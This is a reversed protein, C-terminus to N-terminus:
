KGSSNARKIFDDLALDAWVLEDMVDADTDEGHSLALADIARMKKPILAPDAISGNIAKHSASARLTAKMSVAKSAAILAAQHVDIDPNATSPDDSQDQRSFESFRTEDMSAKQSFGATDSNSEIRMALAARGVHVYATFHSDSSM